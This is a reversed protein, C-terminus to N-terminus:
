YIKDHEYYVTRRCLIYGTANFWLGSTDIYIHSVSHGLYKEASM